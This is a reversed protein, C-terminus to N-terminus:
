KGKSSEHGKVETQLGKMIASEKAGAPKAKYVRWGDSRPDNMNV